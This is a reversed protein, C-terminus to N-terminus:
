LPFDYGVQVGSPKLAVECVADGCDLSWPGDSPEAGVGAALKARVKKALDVAMGDRAPTRELLKATAELRDAVSGSLASPLDYDFLYAFHACGGISFTVTVGDALRVTETLHRNEVRPAAVSKVGPADHILKSELAALDLACDDAAGADAAPAPTPAAVTPAPSAPRAGCALCLLLVVRTV